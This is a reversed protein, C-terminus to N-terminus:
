QENNIAWPWVVGPFSIPKSSSISSSWRLLNVIRDNSDNKGGSDGYDDYDFRCDGPLVVRVEWGAFGEVWFVKAVLDKQWKWCEWWLWILLGWWWPWHKWAPEGRGPEGRCLVREEREGWLEEKEGSDTINDDGDEDDNDDGDYTDDRVTVLHRLKVSMQDSRGRRHM